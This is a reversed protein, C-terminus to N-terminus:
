IVKCRTLQTQKTGKYESHDKITAKLTLESGDQCELYNATKWIFVHGEADKFTYLYTVGYMSDFGNRKTLKAKLEVREGVTGFHYTEQTDLVNYKDRISKVHDRAEFENIYVTDDASRHAIDYFNIKIVPFETVEHDFHWLFIDNFRAGAKKLEDKIEYTNGLVIWTEGNESFGYKALTKANREPATKKAKELRAAELKQNYEYTRVVVKTEGFGTGNCDFCRGGEVHEYGYIHGTGGCKPCRHDVYYHTGNKDVRVFQLNPNNDYESFDNNKVVYEHAM